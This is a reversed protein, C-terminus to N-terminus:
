AAKRVENLHAKLKEATETSIQRKKKIGLLKLNQLILETGQVKADAEGTLQRYEIGVTSKQLSRIINRVKKQGLGNCLDDPNCIWLDFTNNGKPAVVCFKGQVVYEGSRSVIAKKSIRQDFADFLEQKTM